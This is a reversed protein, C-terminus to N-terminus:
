ALRYRVRVRLESYKALCTPRVRQRSEAPPPHPPHPTTTTCFIAYRMRPPAAFTPPPARRVDTPGAWLCKCRRAGVSGRVAAAMALVGEWDERGKGQM